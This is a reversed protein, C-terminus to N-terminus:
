KLLLLLSCLVACSKRVLYGSYLSTGFLAMNTIPHILSAAKGAFIGGELALASESPMLILASALALTAIVDANAVSKSSSSSSSSSSSPPSSPASPSPAASLAISGKRMYRSGGLQFSSVTSALAFLFLPAFSNM